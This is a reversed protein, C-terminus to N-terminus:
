VQMTSDDAAVNIVVVMDHLVRVAVNDASCMVIDNVRTPRVDNGCDVPMPMSLVVDLAILM